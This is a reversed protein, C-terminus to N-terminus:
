PYYEYNGVLKKYRPQLFAVLDIMQSVTMMSFSAGARPANSELLRMEGSGLSRM